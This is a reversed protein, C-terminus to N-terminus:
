EVAWQPIESWSNAIEDKSLPSRFLVEQYYIIAYEGFDEDVAMMADIAPKMWNWRSYDNVNRRNNLEYNSGFHQCASFIYFKVVGDFTLNEIRNIENGREEFILTYTDQDFTLYPEGWGTPNEFIIVPVSNSNFSDHKELIDFVKARVLQIQDKNETM